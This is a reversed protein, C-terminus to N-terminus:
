NADIKQVTYIDVWGALKSVRIFEGLESAINRQTCWVSRHRREFGISRLLNRFTQRSTFASEPIDYSVLLEMGSPLMNRNTRMEQVFWDKWGDCELKIYVEGQKKLMKIKRQEQLARIERKIRWKEGIQQDELFNQYGYLASARPNTFVEMYAGSFEVLASIIEGTFAKNKM